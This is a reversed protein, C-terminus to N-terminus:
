FQLSVLFIYINVGQKLKSINTNPFNLRLQLIDIGMFGRTIASGMRFQDFVKVFSRAWGM